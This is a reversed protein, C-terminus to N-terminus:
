VAPQPPPRSIDELAMARTEIGKKWLLVLSLAVALASVLASGVLGPPSLALSAMALVLVGGIKSAGAALGSGRGRMLTPYIEASYPSLASIIGWMSILLSVVLLTLLLPHGIAEDGLAAFGVLTLSTLAGFLLMTKKSSWRDYLFAVVLTGPVSYLAATAILRDIQRAEMGLDALNTPLWVIFGFNVLGWALGFLTVASSIGGYPRQFLGLYGADRAPAPAPGADAPQPPDATAEVVQAGFARMVARAEEHRGTAALFRPSEPFWRHLAILLFGTPVGLFWMIRWSYDPILATASGSAILFGLATGAGATLVIVGGRRRAPITESLLSYSIPLLGGVGFGMMLCMFLNMSYMPMAGCPSTAVFMVSSLLISARRGIRDGIHGWVFSGIATGLIGSLPYLSVSLAGALPHAPSSLGYEAAVGPIIFTFTFPKLTDIAIALGLVFILTYHARGLRADDMAEVRVAAAIEAAPRRRPILSWVVVAVGTWILSMWLVMSPGMMMGKMVFHRPRTSWYIPVHALVGVAVALTGLWFAAPRPIHLGADPGRARSHATLGGDRGFEM